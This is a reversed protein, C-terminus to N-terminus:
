LPLAVVMTLLSFYGFSGTLQIGLMLIITSVAAIVSLPGPWFVFFPAPIEVFFMFLVGAKLIFMPLKQAYWGIPSLLPQNLFFGSLYALDKSRSGLFKQKGFGFMVRFFLWRFAWAVAPAPAHAAALDPLPNTEPTLLGLFVSEFMLADWPYILALPLDLSVYCAY